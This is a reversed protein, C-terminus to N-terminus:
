SVFTKKTWFHTPGPGPVGRDVGIYIPVFLMIILMRLCFFKSIRNLQGDPLSTVLKHFTTCMVTMVITEDCNINVYGFLTCYYIANKRAKSITDWRDIGIIFTSMHAVLLMVPIVIESSVQQWAAEKKDSNRYSIDDSAYLVPFRKVTEILLEDDM